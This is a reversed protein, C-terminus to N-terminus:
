CFTNFVALCSIFFALDKVSAPNIKMKLGKVMSLICYTEISFLFLFNVCVKETIDLFM